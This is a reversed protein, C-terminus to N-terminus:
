SSVEVDSKPIYCLRRQIEKNALELLQLDLANVELLKDYLGPGCAQEMRRLRVELSEARGPSVNQKGHELDLRGFVPHLYYKAASMSLDFIEAVGPVAAQTIVSAARELDAESPARAYRGANALLNVQTDNVLHPYRTLLLETFHGLDLRRAQEVLPDTNIEARRYFDYISRLRDLPHRLFIIDFFVFSDSQPKPLRLHHSSVATIEPNAHLFQLLDANTLTSDYRRGHLYALRHGFNKELICDITTGANKLLHYHVVVSRVKSHNGLM